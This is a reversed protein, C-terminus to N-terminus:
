KEGKTPNDLEAKPCQWNSIEHHWVGCEVCFFILNGCNKCRREEANEM